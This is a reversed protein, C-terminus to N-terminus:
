AKMILRYASWFGGLVGALIFIVLLLGHTALRRDLYFGVGFGAGICFVMTLGVQSVLGLYRVFDRYGPDKM